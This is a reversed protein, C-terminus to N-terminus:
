SVTGINAPSLHKRGYELPTAPNITISKDVTGIGSLLNSQGKERTITVSTGPNLSM